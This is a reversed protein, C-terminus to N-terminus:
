WDGIPVCAALFDNVGEYSTMVDPWIERPKNKLYMELVRRVFDQSMAENDCKMSGDDEESFTTLGFGASRTTWALNLWDPGEGDLEVSTLTFDPKGGM